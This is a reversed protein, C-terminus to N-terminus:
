NLAITAGKVVARGATKLEMGQNAALTFTTSAEVKVGTASSLEIANAALKLTGNPCSISIDADSAITITNDASTIVISNKRSKDAITVKEAGATDDLVITHGSRSTMVQLDVHDALPPRPSSWLSGVVYPYQPDGHEFAVLVEDDVAPLLFVGRKAGALPAAVRAWWSEDVNSLWPFRVRVRGLKEPDENNTVVGTVVGAIVRRGGSDADLLDLLETM